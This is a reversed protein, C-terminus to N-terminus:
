LYMSSHHFHGAGTLSATILKDIEQIETGLSAALKWHNEVSLKESFIFFFFIPPARSLADTTYLRILSGSYAAFHWFTCINKWFM